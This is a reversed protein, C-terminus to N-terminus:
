YQDFGNGNDEGEIQDNFLESFRERFSQSHYIVLRAAAEPDRQVIAEFIAQHESNSAQMSASNVVKGYSLLYLDTREENRLVFQTLPTNNSAEGVLRHFNRGSRLFGALDARKASVLGLKIAAAIDNLQTETALLAARRALYPEITENATFIEIFEQRTMKRVYLGRGGRPGILREHELIALAERVPTRSINLLTALKEEVLPQEPELQGALIAEKIATYAIERYRPIKPIVVPQLLPQTM